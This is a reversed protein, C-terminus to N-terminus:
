CVILFYYNFGKKIEECAFDRNLTTFNKSPFPFKALIKSSFKIHTTMKVPPNREIKPLNEPDPFSIENFKASLLLRNSLKLFKPDFITLM